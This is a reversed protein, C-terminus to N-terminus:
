PPSVTYEPDPAPPPGVDTAMTESRIASAASRPWGRASAGAFPAIRTSGSNTVAYSHHGGGVVAKVDSVLSVQVPEHRNTRTGDGLTGWANYGWSWVTGDNKVAFSHSNGAAIAQVGTINIMRPLSCDVKGPVNDQIEQQTGCVNGSGDGLEGYTDAGWAWVTGDSKLALSHWGGVAVAIVDDLGNVRVPANRQIKTGDGLEGNTNLGWAWVHGDTTLALSHYGVGTSVAKVEGAIGQVQMPATRDRMPTGPADSRFLM